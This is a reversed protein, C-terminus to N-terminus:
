LIRNMLIGARMGHFKMDSLRVLVTTYNMKMDLPTVQVANRTVSNPENFHRGACGDWLAATFYLASPAVTALHPALRSREGVVGLIEM